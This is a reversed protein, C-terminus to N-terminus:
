FSGGMRFEWNSSDDEPDKDLNYGWEIRLPGMPSLWRVGLGVSKKTDSIDVDDKQWVNGMDYFVVGNLGLEQVLPFVMESQLYGMYEGGIREDTVPDRPSVWGYKFGRVSDLGGLFFREWIPLKGDSGEEVYGAGIKIKGILIDKWIPHYYATSGEFKTYEADGGLLTGANEVSIDALWGRTPNFYRDRSDYTLGMSLSRTSKIDISDRIYRSPDDIYDSIDSEDVRLRSYWRLNDTLPYGFRLAGGYSDKTYDDYEYNWNYIDFGLSFRTDRFYPEFLSLTFRQTSGGIIGRFSLTQGKGLFNRQSVEGMFILSDVSSYGMGVSFTGTPQEKVNVDINMHSEDSGKRPTINVDQFYGLRRLRNQSRKLGTSSFPELEKVRLERRIVKDRTRTNGAIEIREIYVKPGKDVKLTIDVVHNVRDRILQPEINCYAFGQDSFRNTLAIIDKRLVQQSFYQEDKLHLDKLLQEGDKFYDQDISIKGVKYREGENVPITIYIDAGERKIKPRGVKADVYGYNHYFAAIRSLDRELADSKLIGADGTILGMINRLSPTWWPKKEAVEMIEKIKDDSFAKNGEIEIKKIKVKEGETIEFIVDAAQSSVPKIAAVVTTGAYGKDSYLMQIKEANQKLADERIVSYPKIDLVERIKDEGLARNGVIEINRIAPKERVMFTIVKGEPSDQVDAEIEDFYGMRYISKISETVLDKRYQMGQQLPIEALVADTGIRRNGAIDIRAVKYPTLFAQEIRDSLVSCLGSLKEKPGQIFVPLPKNSTSQASIVYLDLSVMDGLLTVNGWIGYGAGLASLYRKIQTRSLDSGIKGVREVLHGRQQLEQLLEREAQQVTHSIQGEPGFGKLHFLAAKTGPVTDMAMAMNGQWQLGTLALFFVILFSALVMTSRYIKLYVEM